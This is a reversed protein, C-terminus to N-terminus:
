EKKLTLKLAERLEKLTFPKKLCYCGSHNLFARTSNSVIDGTALIIRRSLERDKEKIYNYFRIGNLGPMKIDVIILDFKEKEILDLASRGDSLPTVEYGEQTLAETLLELISPEDDVVLVKKLPKDELSKLYEM